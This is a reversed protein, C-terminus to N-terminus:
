LHRRPLGRRGCTRGRGGACRRIRGSHPLAAAPQGQTELGVPTLGVGRHLEQRPAGVVGNGQGRGLRDEDQAPRRGGFGRHHTHLDDAAIGRRVHDAPLFQGTLYVVQAALVAGLPMRVHRGVGLDLVLLDIRSYVEDVVAVLLLQLVVEDYGRARVRTGDGKGERAGVRHVKVGTAVQHQVGGPAVDAFVLGEDVLFHVANPLLN